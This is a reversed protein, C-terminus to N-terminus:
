LFTIHEVKVDDDAVMEGDMMGHIYCEGVLEYTSEDDTSRRIIYPTQAGLIICVVDGPKCLPPVMGMYGFRTTCFRRGASCRAMAMVFGNNIRSLIRGWFNKDAFSPITSVWVGSSEYYPKMIDFVDLFEHYHLGYTTPAPRTMLTIDSDGILTRWFAELLVQDSKFPYTKKTSQVALRHAEKHWNYQEEFYNIRIEINCFDYLYNDDPRSLTSGLRAIEDVIIAGLTLSPKFTICPKKKSSACYVDTGHYGPIALPTACPLHTWDPVWSQLGTMRNQYGIGAYSLVCLPDDNCSFIYRATELYVNQISVSKSYDPKIIKQSEDTTIGLLAFVKDRPDTAKFMSCESLLLGITSKKRLTALTQHLQPPLIEPIELLLSRLEGLKEFLQTNRRMNVMSGLCRLNILARNGDQTMQLFSIMDVNAFIDSLQEMADWGIYWGGYVIQLNSAVATEQVVWVRTFWPHNLFKVFEVWEIGSRSNEFRESLKRGSVGCSKHLIVLNHLHGLALESLTVNGLWVIVRSAQRYINKMLGIQKAKENLNSQDICVSDIWILRTQWLSSRGRLADYTALSVILPVGNIYIKRKESSTGWHYSIAEYDPANNLSVHNLTGRISFFPIWKRLRFLRIERNERIPLYEWEQSSSSRVTAACWIFIPHWISSMTRLISKSFHFISGFTESFDIFIENIGIIWLFQLCGYAVAYKRCFLNLCASWITAAFSNQFRQNRSAWFVPVAAFILPNYMHILAPLFCRLFAIILTVAIYLIMPMTEKALNSFNQYENPGDTKVHVRYWNLCSIILQPLILLFPKAGMLGMLHLFVAVM